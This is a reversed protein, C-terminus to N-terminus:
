YDYSTCLRHMMVMVMILFGVSPNRGQEVVGGGSTSTGIMTTPSSSSLSSSSPFYKQCTPEVPADAKPFDVSRPCSNTLSSPCEIVDYTEKDVCMWIEKISNGSCKVIPDVGYADSLAKQIDDADVTNGMTDIGADQLGVDVDYKDNLELANTFYEEQTPLV